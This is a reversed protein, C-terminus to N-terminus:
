KQEEVMCDAGGVPLLMLIKQSSASVRDKGSHAIHFLLTRGHGVPGEAGYAVNTTSVTSAMLTM